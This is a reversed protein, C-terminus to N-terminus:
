YISLAYSLIQFLLGFKLQRKLETKPKPTKFYLVFLVISSLPTLPIYFLIPNTIDIFSQWYYAKQTSNALLNPAIVIGEYLNGFFWLATGFLSFLLLNNFLKDQM